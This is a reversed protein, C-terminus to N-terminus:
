IDTAEEVEQDTATTVEIEGLGDFDPIADDDSSVVPAPAAPAPAPAPAASRKQLRKQLEGVYTMVAKEDYRETAALEEADLLPPLDLHQQAADFALELNSLRDDASEAPAEVLGWDLLGAESLIAAFATGDNFGSSFGRPEQLEAEGLSGVSRQAWALLGAKKGGGGGSAAASPPPEREEGAASGDRPPVPPPPAPKESPPPPAATDDAGQQEAKRRKAMSALANARFDV